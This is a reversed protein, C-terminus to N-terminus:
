DKKMKEKKVQEILHETNITQYHNVGLYKDQIKRAKQFLVEARRWFHKRLYLEGLEQYATATYPHDGFYKKTIALGHKFFYEASSYRKQAFYVQGLVRDVDAIRPHGPLFYRRVITRAKKAFKLAKKLEGKQLYTTSLNCYATISHKSNKGFIKSDISISSNLYSLAQRYNKNKLACVGLDNYVTAVGLSDEKFNKRYENLSRELWKQSTQFKGTETYLQGMINCLKAMDLSDKSDQQKAALDIAQKLYQLAADYRYLKISILGLFSLSNIIKKQKVSRRAGAKSFMTLAEKTLQEAKKYEGRYICYAGMKLYTDAKKFQEPNLKLFEQSYHYLLASESSDNKSIQKFTLETLDILEALYKGFVKTDRQKAPLEDYNIYVDTMLLQAQRIKNENQLELVKKYAQKIESINKSVIKKTQASINKVIAHKVVSLVIDGDGLALKAGCPTQPTASNQSVDAAVIHTLEKIVLVKGDRNTDAKGKLSQLISNTFVGGVRANEIATQTVGSAVLAYICRKKLFKQFEKVNMSDPKRSRDAVLVGAYCCDLLFLIHSNNMTIALEKLLDVSIGRKAAQGSLCDFPILYSRPSNAVVIGSGHGSYYFVLLDNKHSQAKVREVARIINDKSAKQDTLLIVEDFNSARFFVAMKQADSVASKLDSCHKGEAKFESYKDIGICIAVKRRYKFQPSFVRVAKIGKTAASVDLTLFLVFLLAFVKKINLINRKM